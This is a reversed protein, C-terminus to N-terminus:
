KERTVVVKTRVYVSVGDPEPEGELLREKTIANITGWPLVMENQYGNNLCWIRCAEKDRTVAHPESQTRVSGIGELKITTIGEAEYSDVIMQEVAALRVGIESVIEKAAEKEARLEHVLAALEATTKGQFPGKATDVRDQYKGGEEDGFMGPPAKPLDGIIKSYKGM